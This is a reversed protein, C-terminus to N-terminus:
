TGMPRPVVLVPATSERVFDAAVSGFIARAFGTRGRSGVAVLAAPHFLLHDHLGSVPSIPDYVAKTELDPASARYPAAVRELFADVDGDPGFTRRAPGKGIPPPVDEAVALVTPRERLLGSWHLASPLIQEASETDGVCIVVGTGARADVRTDDYAHGVVIVPERRRRLVETTVSGVIAASRGRGHSALCAVGVDGLDRLVTDIADAPDPDILVDVEVTLGRPRLESLVRKREDVEEEKAVASFLLLAADLRRALRTAAQLARMAFESGDLPVVVIEIRDPAFDSM